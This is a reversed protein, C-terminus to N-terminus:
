KRKTGCNSVLKLHAIIEASPDIQHKVLEQYKPFIALIKAFDSGLERARM